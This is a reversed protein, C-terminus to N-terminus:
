PRNSSVFPLIERTTNNDPHIIQHNFKLEIENWKAMENIEQKLQFFLGKSM